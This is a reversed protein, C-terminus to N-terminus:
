LDGKILHDFTNKWLLEDEMLPDLLSGFLYGCISNPKTFKLGQNRPHHTITMSHYRGHHIPNLDGRGTM